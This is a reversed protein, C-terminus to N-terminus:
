NAAQKFVHQFKREPRKKHAEVMRQAKALQNEERQSTIERGQSVTLVGGTQLQRNKSQRRAWAQNDALKTKALDRRTQLLQYSQSEAGKIFRELSRQLDQQEDVLQKSKELLRDGVRKLKRITM